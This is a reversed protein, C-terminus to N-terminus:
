RRDPVVGESSAAGLGMPMLHRWSGPPGPLPRSASVRPEHLEGGVSEAHERGVRWAVAHRFPESESALRCGCREFGKGSFSLWGLDTAQDHSLDLPLPCDYRACPLRAWILTAIALTLDRAAM